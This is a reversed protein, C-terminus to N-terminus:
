VRHLRDICLVFIVCAKIPLTKNETKHSFIHMEILVRNFELHFNCIGIYM